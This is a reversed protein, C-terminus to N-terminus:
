WSPPHQPQEDATYEKKFAADFKVVEDFEGPTSGMQFEGAPILTLQMGISNTELVKRGLALAWGAQAAKIESPSFPAILLEPTASLSREVM